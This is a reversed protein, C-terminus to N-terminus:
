TTKQSQLWKFIAPFKRVTQMLKEFDFREAYIEIENCYDLLIQLHKEKLITQIKKGFLEIENIVQNKIIIEYEPLIESELIALLEPLKERQDKPLEEMTIDPEIPLDSENIDTKRYKLYKTLLDLLDAKKIPKLLHEDFIVQLNEKEKLSKISATLALIPISKTSDDNKLLETAEFGGMVPMRLDMLILDPINKKTIDIAEKGNEAQLLTLPSEELIDIILKRNEDNDDVILIKAPDFIITSKDSEEQDAKTETEIVRVNKMEISFTSGKGEESELSISGDMKEILKKTISLGLGTGGYKAANQGKTQIFPDFILKQQDPPIGIGTDKIHFKLTVFEDTKRGKIIDFCLTILGKETFKIANDILNFLIQRIRVEDILLVKPVAKKIDIKLVIRKEKIKLSFINRIEAAIIRLNVPSPIIEIEGSEIKSLDLIDNILRLLRKGSSHISEIQSLQKENQVSKTLLESFGIIANMPTRIEHSMNALFESKARNSLDAEEKSKILDTEFTKRFTIDFRVSVYQYPKKDSDLFPIITSDVWYYKGDKARNKIEGRWIEGQSITRWMEAFFEVPHFGSNLMNHNKGILEERSYKSIKCFNNNVYNIIGNKDTIEVIGSEDLALKYDSIDKISQQLKQQSITLERTRQAVMEELNERHKMIEEETNKTKTIDHFGAIVMQENDNSMLQLSVSCWFSEGDSKQLIMEYNDIFNNSKLSAILTKFIDGNPFFDNWERHTIESMSIKFLRGMSENAMVVTNNDINAILLPVPSAEIISRLRNESEKLLKQAKKQETIDEVTGEFFLASGTTDKVIRANERIPIEEGTSTLWCGEVDKAYGYQQIRMIFEEHSVPSNKCYGEIALNRKQLETLSSFKLMGLLTPNANIIRGEPTTQYIGIPANEFLSRYLEHSIYLREEALKLDTIDTVTGILAVPNGRADYEFKGRGHLWREEKDNKRIIKYKIDLVGKEKITTNLNETISDRFDPHILSLWGDVSHVYNSDIGFIADLIESSSWIYTQLDLRYNGLMAIKQSEKLVRESEKLEVTLEEAINQARNKTGILSRTLLFLLVSIIVGSILIIWAGAFEYLLNGKKQTFLLTWQHKNFDIPLILTFRFDEKKTNPQVKTSEYLLTQATCNLGDYIHLRYRGIKDITEWNILIGSIINMMSNPSFVWGILESRRQEVTSISSGARYVPAFMINDSQEDAKIRFPKIIKGTLAAIDNDGASEMAEKFVDETMLDYGIMNQNSETFPELLIVSSYVENKGEPWVKYDTFGLQQLSTNHGYLEKKELKLSYGIAQIGPLNLYVKSQKIFSRWEERTITDSSSIYAAGSRLLQAYAHLRLDLKSAIEKCEFTFESKDKIDIESKIYITAAYTVLLGATLIAWALWNNINKM